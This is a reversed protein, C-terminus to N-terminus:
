GSVANTYIWIDNASDIVMEGSGFAVETASIGKTTTLATGVTSSLTRVTVIEGAVTGGAGGGGVNGNGIGADDVDKGVALRDSSNDYYLAM